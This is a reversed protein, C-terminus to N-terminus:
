VIQIPCVSHPQRVIGMRRSLRNEDNGQDCGLSRRSLGWLNLGIHQFVLVNYEISNM